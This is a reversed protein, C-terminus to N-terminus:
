NWDTPSIRGHSDYKEDSRSLILNRLAGPMLKGVLLDDPIITESFFIKFTEALWFCSNGM